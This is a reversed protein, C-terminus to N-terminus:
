GSRAPAVPAASLSGLEARQTCPRRSPVISLGTSARVSTSSAHRRQPRSCTRCSAWSTTESSTVLARSWVPPGITTVARVPEDYRTMVTRSRLGTGGTLVRGWTTRPTSGAKAGTCTGVGRAASGPAAAAATPAATLLSAAPSMLLFVLVFVLPAPSLYRLWLRLAGSRAYLLGGGIAALVGVVVLGAGLLPTLKKAVLLGLLGLLGAVLVLHVAAQVRRGLLGALLDVGWLALPPLVAVAIALAVIDRGDAQRFLLFDPARGLVDLLPQAVVLGTLAFLELFLWLQRSLYPRLRAWAGTPAPDDPAAAHGPDTQLTM